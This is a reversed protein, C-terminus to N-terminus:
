SRVVPIQEADGGLWRLASPCDDFIPFVGDVHMTHLVAVVFRSPAALCLNGDRRRAHRHARVLVGLGAPDLTHAGALDVVVDGYRDVADALTDRLLAAVQDDLDAHVRVVAAGPHGTLEVAQESLEAHTM